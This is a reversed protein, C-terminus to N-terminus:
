CAISLSVQHPLVNVKSLAVLYNRELALQEALDAIAQLPPMPLPASDFVVRDPNLLGRNQMHEVISHATSLVSSTKVIECRAYREGAFSVDAVWLTPDGGPTQQARFLLKGAVVAKSFEPIFPSLHDIASLTRQEIEATQWQKELKHLRLEPYYISLVKLIM